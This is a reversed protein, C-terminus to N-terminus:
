SFKKLEKSRNRYKNVIKYSHSLVEKTVRTPIIQIGNNIYPMSYIKKGVKKLSKNNKLLTNIDSNLFALSNNNRYYTNDVSKHSSSNTINFNTFTYNNIFYFEEKVRINKLSRNKVKKKMKHKSLLNPLSGDNDTRNYISTQREQENNFSFINGEEDITYNANLNCPNSNSFGNTKLYLTNNLIKPKISIEKTSMSKFLKKNSLEIEKQIEFKNLYKKGLKDNKKNLYKINILDSNNKLEKISKISDNNLSIINNYNLNSKSNRKNANRNLSNSKKNLNKNYNKNSIIKKIENIYFKKDMSHSPHINIKLNTINRDKRNKIDHKIFSKESKDENQLSNADSVVKKSLIQNIINVLEKIIKQQNELLQRIKTKNKVSYENLKNEIQSIQFSHNKMTKDFLKTEKIIRQNIDNYKKSKDLIIYTKSNNKNLM